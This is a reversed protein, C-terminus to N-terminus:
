FNYDYHHRPEDSILFIKFFAKSVRDKITSELTEFEWRQDSNNLCVASFGGAVYNMKVTNRVAKMEQIVIGTKGYVGVVQGVIYLDTYGKRSVFKGILEKNKAQNHM